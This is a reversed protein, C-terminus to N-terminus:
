DARGGLRMQKWISIQSLRQWLHRSKSKNLIMCSLLAAESYSTDSLWWNRRNYPTYLSQCSHWTQAFSLLHTFQDFNSVKIQLLRDLQPIIKWLFFIFSRISELLNFIYCMIKSFGTFPFLIYLRHSEWTFHYITCCYNSFVCLFLRTLNPM